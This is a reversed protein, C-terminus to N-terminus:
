LIDELTWVSLLRASVGEGELRARCALRHKPPNTSRGTPNDRLAAVEAVDAEDLGAGDLIEVVCGGCRGDACRTLIPVRLGQAAVRLTQGSACRVEEERGDVTLFRVTLQAPAQPEDAGAFFGRLRRRVGFRSM